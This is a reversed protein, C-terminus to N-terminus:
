VYVIVPTPDVPITPGTSPPFPFLPGKGVHLSLGGAVADIEGDDLIRIRDAFDRTNFETM